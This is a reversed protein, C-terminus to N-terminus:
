LGRGSVERPFEGTPRSM